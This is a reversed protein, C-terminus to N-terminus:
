LLSIVRKTSEILDILNLYTIPKVQELMQSKSFGRAELDEVLCYLNQSSLSIGNNSVAGISADEMLVIDCEPLKESLLVLNETEAINFSKGYLILNQSM